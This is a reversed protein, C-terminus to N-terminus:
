IIGEMSLTLVTRGKQIDLVIEYYSCGFRDVAKPEIAAELINTDNRAEWRGEETVLLTFGFVSQNSDITWQPRGDTSQGPHIAIQKRASKWRWIQEATWWALGRSQGYRVLKVLADGVNDDNQILMAPHFLFHAVGHVNAARDLLAIAEQETCRLPMPPDWALTPLSLVDMPRNRELATGVPTHPHCTGALFGKNGQKTGGRSQEVKVGARECWRYFAADGEWRLYHNKNTLIARGPFQEQLMAWQVRFDAERWRSEPIDTGMANFHLAIEHGAAAIAENIEADYGPMIVCWSSRIDAEELRALLVRAHAPSNGDTDHSIHGVAPLGDPWFWVQALAVDIQEHLRYLLRMWVIRWEDLVPHLFFPVGGEGASDRDRKWDLVVADDTKLMGDDTAATGDPAPALDRVVPVGQQILCFTSSLNVAFLAAVGRGISRIVAAPASASTGNRQVISGFSEVETQVPNAQVADFFHFASSLGESLGDKGWDVWGEKVNGVADVGLVDELGHTGGVALLANGRQCWSMFVSSWRPDTSGGAVITVGNPQQELWEGPNMRRCSLGLDNLLTVLYPTFCDRGEEWARETESHDWVVTLM